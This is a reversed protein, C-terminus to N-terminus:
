ASEPKPKLGTSSARPVASQGSRWRQGYSMRGAATATLDVTGIGDVGNPFHSFELMTRVTPRIGASEAHRPTENGVLFVLRREERQSAVNIADPDGVHIKRWGANPVEIIPRAAISGRM